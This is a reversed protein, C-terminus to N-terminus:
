MEEYLQQKTKEIIGTIRKDHEISKKRFEKLIGRIRISKKRAKLSSYRTIRGQEALRVFDGLEIKLMELFESYQNKKM